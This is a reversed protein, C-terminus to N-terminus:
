IGRGEEGGDGTQGEGRGELRQGCEAGLCDDVELASPVIPDLCLCLEAM